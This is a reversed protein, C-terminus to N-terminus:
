MEEILPKRVLEAVRIWESVGKVFVDDAEAMTEHGWIIIDDFDGVQESSKLGSEGTEEEDDHPTAIWEMPKAGLEVKAGKIVVGRYGEPVKLKRGNM